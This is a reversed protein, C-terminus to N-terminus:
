KKDRRRRKTIERDKIEYAAAEVVGLVVKFMKESLALPKPETKFIFVIHPM